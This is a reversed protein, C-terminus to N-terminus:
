PPSLHLQEIASDAIARTVFLTSVSYLKEIADEAEALSIRGQHYAGVVVGLSGVPRIAMLKAAARAALDDTMPM